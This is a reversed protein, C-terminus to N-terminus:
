FIHFCVKACLWLRNVKQFSRVLGSVLDVTPNFALCLTLMWWPARCLAKELCQKIIKLKHQPLYISKKVLVTSVNETDMVDREIWAWNKSVCSKGILKIQFMYTLVGVKSFLCSFQIENIGFLRGPSFLMFFAFFSIQFVTTDTAKLPYSSILLLVHPM